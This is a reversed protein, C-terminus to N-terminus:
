LQNVVGAFLPLGEAGTIAFLFPRDLTFYVTETPIPPCSGVRMDVIAAATCGEEDVVVRVAHNAGTIRVGPTDTLPTFDAAQTFIDTVGLARLQTLLDLQSSVDFKPMSLEVEVWATNEAWRESGVAYSSTLVDLAKEDALLEEPSVGEDPLILVMETYGGLDLSIASFNDSWLYNRDSTLHMFDASSVSGDANHFEDPRTLAPDFERYWGAKFYVTSVLALLDEPNTRMTQVYDSLLGETQANTWEQLARDLTESGMEGQYTSAFYNEALFDLTSQKADLDQNLWLSNALHTVRENDDYYLQRWLLSTQERLAAMDTVGLTDMIQQRSSGDTLETLLALAMYVNVPSYVTSEGDAGGLSQTLAARSFDGLSTLYERYATNGWGLQRGVAEHYANYWESRADWYGESDFVGTKPDTYDEEVPCPEVTPYQAVALALAKQGLIDGGALLQLFLAAAVVLAIAATATLWRARSPHPREAREMAQLTKNKLDQSARLKGVADRYKM